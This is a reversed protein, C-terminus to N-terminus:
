WLPPAIMIAMPIKKSITTLRQANWWHLVTIAGSMALSLRPPLHHVDPRNLPRSRDEQNQQDQQDQKADLDHAACPRGPRVIKFVRIERQDQIYIWDQINIWDLWHRRGSRCHTRAPRFAPRSWRRDHDANRTRTWCIRRPSITSVSVHTIKIQKDRGVPAPSSTSIQASQRDTALAQLPLHRFPLRFPLSASDFGPFFPYRGHEKIKFATLAGQNVIITAPRHAM